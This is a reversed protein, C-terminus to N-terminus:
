ATLRRAGEALTVIEFDSALAEDVLRALAEGTCGWPSPTPQVDHTFLVVWADRARAESMWRRAVAEGDAGEIGVAPAQNLDTGLEIVGPHLARLVAFRSALARKPGFGVDGYPYAFTAPEGLGWAKLTEINREVDAFAQAGTARGCDLHSYTHCAIEHGAAQLDRYDTAEACVGMPAEQGALGASVFYVGRAGRAELIAAGAKAATLPADDFAFTILPRAPAVALPRRHALRVLRRRLKGKLSRDPQYADAYSM